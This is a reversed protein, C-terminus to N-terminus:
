AADLPMPKAHSCSPVVTAILFMEHLNKANGDSLGIVLLLLISILGVVRLELIRLFYADLILQCYCIAELDVVVAERREALLL